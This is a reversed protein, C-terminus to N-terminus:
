LFLCATMEPKLSNKSASKFWHGWLVCWSQLFIKPEPSFFIRMLLFLMIPHIRSHLCAFLSWTFSSSYSGWFLVFLDSLILSCHPPMSSLHPFLYWRMDTWLILTISVRCWFQTSFIAWDTFHKGSLSSSSLESGCCGCLVLCLLM